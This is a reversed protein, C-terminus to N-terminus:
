NASDLIQVLKKLLTERYRYPVERNFNFVFRYNEDSVEIYGAFSRVGKLTGTKARISATISELDYRKFLTKYTSLQALLNDLQRASLRNNRSLGAGERISFFEWGFDNRLTREISSSADSFDVQGDKALMLFTQNAMFNNSFELTGQVVDSLTHSNKHLYVLEADEPVLGRSISVAKLNAKIALLEAFNQESRQADILNIRERSGNRPRGLIKAAGRASVTLPSQPEASVIRGETNGLKATNFNVAVASLPANYPDAVKTRGPVIQSKFYSGDVMIRKVWSLDQNQLEEVIIDLEESVIYPDGFGKIWLEGNYRYFHTIFRHNAGWKKLAAYSTALKTLSAPVLPKDAQWEYVVSGDARSILIADTNLLEEGEFLSSLTKPQAIQAVATISFFILFISTLARM